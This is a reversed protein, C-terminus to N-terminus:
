MTGVGVEGKVGQWKFCPEATKEAAAEEILYVRM